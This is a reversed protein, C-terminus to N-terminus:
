PAPKKQLIEKKSVMIQLQWPTGPQAAARPRNRPGPHPDSICFNVAQQKRGQSLCGLSHTLLQAKHRVGDPSKAYTFCDTGALSLPEQETMSHSHGNGQM